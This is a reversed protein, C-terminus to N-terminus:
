RMPLLDHSCRGESVPRKEVVEWTGEGPSGVWVDQGRVEVAYACAKLGTSSEGTRLDFDYRHWPCVIAATMEEMDPDPDLELDAHSLDAGLHPCTSEM